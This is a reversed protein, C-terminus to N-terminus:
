QLAMAAVDVPQGNHRLEITLRPNDRGMHGIPAGPAVLEGTSATVRELGALVSTWGHGHDLIVIDGYGRFPGAYAVRAMTPASVPAGGATALTLGRARVGVGAREGMGLVVKGAAPLRYAASRSQTAVPFDPAPLAALRATENPSQALTDVGEGADLAAALAQEAEARAAATAIMQRRLAATRRKIEPALAAILARTRVMDDAAGPKALALAPPRLALRQATALLQVLPAREAALKAEQASAQADLAALRAETQSVSANALFLALIM